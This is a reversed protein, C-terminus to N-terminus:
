IRIVQPCTIVFKLKDKSPSSNFASDLRNATDIVYQLKQRLETCHANLLYVFKMKLAIVTVLCANLNLM